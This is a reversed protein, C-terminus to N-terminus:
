SCPALTPSGCLAKYHSTDLAALLLSLRERTVGAMRGPVGGTRLGEGSGELHLEGGKRIVKGSARHGLSKDECGWLSSWAKVMCVELARLASPLSPLQTATISDSKSKLSSDSAVCSLSQPPLPRPCLRTAKLPSLLMLRSVMKLPSCPFAHTQPWPTFPNGGRCVRARQSKREKGWM